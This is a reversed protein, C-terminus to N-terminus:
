AVEVELDEEGREGAEAEKNGPITATPIATAVTSKRPIIMITRREKQMTKLQEIIITTTKKMVLKRPMPFTEEVEGDELVREVVAGVLAPLMEEEEGAVMDVDADGELLIITKRPFLIRKTNTKEIGEEELCASSRKHTEEPAGAEEEVMWGELAGETEEETSHTEGGAEEHVVPDTEGALEEEWVEPM